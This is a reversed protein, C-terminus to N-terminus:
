TGVGLRRLDAVWAQAAALEAPTALNASALATYVAVLGDGMTGSPSLSELVEVVAEVERYMVVEDAFDRMLDHVNREQRVTAPGFGLRLARDRFLRQAVYGRLIDCYRMTVRGPLFLAAFAERRWFTNQSNFPCYVGPGLVLRRDRRFTVRGGRTLRYIADVDPDDDALEQWVAVEAPGPTAGVAAGGARNIERLPFGRPWVPADTFARYVNFYRGGTVTAVARPSFDIGEGWGLLPHNDDDTEAIVRAGQAIAYLYGINKRAYHNEPCHAAYTFGLKGQQELDLFTIRPDTVRAPGKRDGVLVVRWGPLAAYALVAATPEAISTVILFKNGDTHSM